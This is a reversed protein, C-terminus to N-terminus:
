LEKITTVRIISAIHEESVDSRVLDVRSYWQLVRYEELTFKNIKKNGAIATDTNL